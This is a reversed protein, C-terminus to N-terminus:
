VAKPVFHIDVSEIFLLSMGILGAVLAGVVGLVAAVATKKGSEDDAWREKGSSGNAGGKVEQTTCVPKGDKDTVPIPKSAEDLLKNGEADVKWTCNEEVVVVRKTDRVMTEAAGAPASCVAGLAVAAALAAGRLRRM